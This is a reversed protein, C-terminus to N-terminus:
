SESPVLEIDEQAADRQKKWSRLSLVCIALLIAFCGGVFVAGNRTTQWTQWIIAIVGLGFGGGTLVSVLESSAFLEGAEMWDAFKALVLASFSCGMGLLYFIGPQFMMESMDNAVLQWGIVCIALSVTAISQSYDMLYALNEKELDEM